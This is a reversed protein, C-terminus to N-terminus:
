AACALEAQAAYAVFLTEPGTAYPSADGLEDRWGRIVRGSRIERAVLCVVDPREGPKAIFEFDVAWIERPSM